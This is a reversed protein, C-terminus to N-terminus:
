YSGGGTGPSITLWTQKQSQEFMGISDHNFTEAILGEGLSSKTRANCRLNSV